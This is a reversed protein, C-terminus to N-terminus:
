KELDVIALTNSGHLPYTIGNTEEYFRIGMLMFLHKTTNTSLNATLSLAATHSNTIPLYSSAATNSEIESQAFDAATAGIM